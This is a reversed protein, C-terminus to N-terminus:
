WTLHSVPMPRERRWSRASSPSPSQDDEPFVEGVSGGVSLDLSIARRTPLRVRRHLAGSRCISVVPFSGGVDVIFQKVLSFWDAVAEPNLARARQTDLPKSWHTQLPDRHRTLFRSVWEGGVDEWTLGRHADGIVNAFQEIEKKGQPFGRNASEELLNVLVLEQANTLKMQDEHAESMSRGGDYRDLITRWRNPIQYKRAITRLGEGRGDPKLQEHAYALVAAQLVKEQDQSSQRKKARASLAHNPM